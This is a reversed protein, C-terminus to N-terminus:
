KGTRVIKRNCPFITEKVNDEPKKQEQLFDYYYLEKLVFFLASWYKNIVDRDPCNMLRRLSNGKVFGNM